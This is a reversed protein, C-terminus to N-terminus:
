AARVYVRPPLAGSASVAFGPGLAGTVSIAYYCAPVNAAGAAAITTDGVVGSPQAAAARYTAATGVQPAACLWVLPGTVAQNITIEHDAIDEVAVTGADLILAGPTGSGSDSRLGLRCVAGTGGAATTTVGIRDFTVSSPVWLPMAYERSITSAFTSRTGPPGYYHGAIFRPQVVGTRLAAVTSSLQAESVYPGVTGPDVREITYTPTGASILKVIADPTSATSLTRVSYPAVVKTGDGGVTPDTPTYAGLVVYIPVSGLNTVRVWGDGTLTKTAVTNATLTDTISIAM